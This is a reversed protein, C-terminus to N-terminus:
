NKKFERFVFHLNFTWSAREPCYRRFKHVNKRWLLEKIALFGDGITILNVTPEKECIDVSDFDNDAM